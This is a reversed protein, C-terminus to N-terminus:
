NPFGSIRARVRSYMLILCLKGHLTHLAGRIEREQLVNNFALDAEKFVRLLHDALMELQSVESKPYKRELEKLLAALQELQIDAACPPRM